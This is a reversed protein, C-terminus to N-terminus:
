GTSGLGGIRDTKQTPKIKTEQLKYTPNKIMELQAIKQNHHIIIEIETMNYFLLFTEHYYDPDIIGEDHAHHLGIKYGTSSRPHTRVSYGQPINFILGTPILVRDKPQIYICGNEKDKSFVEMRDLNIPREIQRNYKDYGKIIIPKEEGIRLYASVDFCVSWKTEFKLDQSDEYIKYYELPPFDYKEVEEM